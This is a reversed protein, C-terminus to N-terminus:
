RAYEAITAAKTVIVKRENWTRRVRQNKDVAIAIGSPM